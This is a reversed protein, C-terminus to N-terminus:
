SSQATQLHNGQRRGKDTLEWIGRPSNKKLMGKDAMVQREWQAANRWRIDNGSPLYDLDAAILDDRMLEGVNDLLENTRSWGGMEYLVQLIPNRYADQPARENARHTYRRKCPPRPRSDPDNGAVAELKVRLIVDQCRLM